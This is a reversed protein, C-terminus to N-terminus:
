PNTPKSPDPKVHYGGPGELAWLYTGGVILLLGLCAVPHALPLRLIWNATFIFGDIFHNDILPLFMADKAVFAPFAADYLIGFAGVLMGLSVVLPWWSQDPMHIGHSDEEPAQTDSRVQEPHHKAFFFHDRAQVRPIKAFNYEPPPSPVTWELTRADWPDAPAPKGRALTWVMQVIFIAVGVGLILAGITSILNWENWGLNADYSHQRRPMGDIGLFHMPFFAVNFGIFILAFQIMGLKENMMKGFMKPFWYYIGAFLAFISGGILVYHFHAVVFYSDQQQADAPAASHMIGTFGGMMFMWIFGCAYVMPVRYHIRGGWMTGIWNFIKV